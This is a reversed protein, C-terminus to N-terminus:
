CSSCTSIFSPSYGNKKETTADHSGSGRRVRFDLSVRSENEQSKRNYHKMKNLYGVFYEDINLNLKIYENPHLNSNPNPEFYISNTNHMRTLPIQRNTTTTKDRKKEFMVLLVVDSISVIVNYEDNPHEFEDDRHLGVIESSPDTDRKGLTTEGPRHFRINPTKQVLIREESHFLKPKIETRVFRVYDYLFTYSTDFANLFRKVMPDDRDTYGMIKNQKKKKKEDSNYMVHNHINELSSEIGIMRRVTRSFDYRHQKYKYIQFFTENIKM